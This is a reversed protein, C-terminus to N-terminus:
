EKTPYGFIVNRIDSTVNNTVEAVFVFEPRSPFQGLKKLRKKKKRPYRIKFHTIKTLPMEKQKSNRDTLLKGIM